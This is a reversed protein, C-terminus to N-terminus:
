VGCGNDVVRLVVADSQSFLAMEVTDANAHRAANTLAEQAVRYIM